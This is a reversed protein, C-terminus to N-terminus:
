RKIFGHTKTKLYDIISEDPKFTLEYCPVSLSLKDCFELANKIGWSMWFPAFACRFLRSNAEFRDLKRLKNKDGHKLFFIKNLVASGPSIANATGAWPTGFIKFNKKILRIIIRDDNLINIGSKNKFIEALTSKGAGSVGVFVFGRGHWNIGCSHLLIGQHLTLLHTLLIHDCPWSLPERLLVPRKKFIPSFYIDGRTFDPEFLAIKYAINGSDWDYFEFQYRQDNRQHLRWLHDAQFIKVARKDKKPLGNYHVRLRVDPKRSTIFPQYCEAFRPEIETEPYRFGKKGGTPHIQIVLDGM